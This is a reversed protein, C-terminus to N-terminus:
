GRADRRNRRNWRIPNTIIYSRIRHLEAQNRVIHEFYNRQWVRTGGGGTNVRRTVASKFAGIITPLSGATPRGFAPAARDDRNRLPVAHRAGVDDPPADVDDSAARAGILIIGHFHDPMVVFADLCVAPFHAPIALWCERALRGFRSLQVRGNVTSGLLPAGNHTCITVFYTGPRTYDYGVLRVSRRRLRAVRPNWSRDDLSM